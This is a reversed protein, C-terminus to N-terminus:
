GRSAKGKGRAKAIADFTKKEAAHTAAKGTLEQWRKVGVDVYRPDLELAYGVRKTQEAAIITSSAGAFFDLVIQGETTSNGLARRALEVPKMTPHLAAGAKGLGADRSVEWVDEAPGGSAQLLVTGDVHMHRVKRGKPAQASVYIEGGAKTALILGQGVATHAEGKASRAALRWVTTQTRDGHWAPKVGQRAAYFCPEHAWRYDSWGLVMAPKAWIIMGLEVLGVDRLARAFDERTASAHWVYWGADERTHEIAAAFASNLLQYLQGRRLEDGQIAEFGGSPSEYSIGYPPDTFVCQAKGGAMLAKLAAPKTADGCMLRHDGCRWVDGSKSVAHKPLEPAPPETPAPPDPELTLAIESAEFGTLGLDMGMAKLDGLEIKLLDQDWGADLAARNDGLIFTRKEGESLGSLEIVPVRQMGLQLAAQLSGHGKLIEGKKSDVLIPVVFGVTEILRKIKTIQEPPHVRANRAYPKLKSVQRYEIRLNNNKM